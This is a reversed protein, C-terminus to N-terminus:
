RDQIAGQRLAAAPVWGSARGHLVRCWDGHRERIEVEAGAPIEFLARAGADPCLRARSAVELTALTGRRRRVFWSLGRVTGDARLATGNGSPAEPMAVFPMPANTPSSEIERAKVRIAFPGVQLTEYDGKIPNFVAVTLAAAQTANTSMPIIVQAFSTVGDDQATLKPPYVKFDPGPRYEVDSLDDVVGKGLLSWKLNLLDGVSASTPSLSASLRFQGVAGCYSAPRGELPPALVDIELVDATSQFPLIRRMPFGSSRMRVAIQGNLVPAFVVTGQRLLIADTTFALKQPSGSEVQRFRGMQVVGADPLGDIDIGGALDAEGIDVVINVAVTQGVYYRPQTPALRFTVTPTLATRQALAGFGGFVVVVLFAMMQFRFKM